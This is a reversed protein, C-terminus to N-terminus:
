VASELKEEVGEEGNEVEYKWVARGGTPDDGGM